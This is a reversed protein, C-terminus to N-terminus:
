KKAKHGHDHTGTRAELLHEHPEEHFDESFGALAKKYANRSRIWYAVGLTILTVGLIGAIIQAPGTTPLAAPVCNGKSDVVEGDKPTCPEPNCRSDGTPIGPKCENPKCEITVEVPATAEKGGNNTDIRVKNVLTNKGCELDKAAGVTAKFTVYAAAGPAYDGIKIGGGTTVGDAIAKGNPNSTNTLISSGPVYSLGKPLTDKVVVGDQQTSGTNKYSVLYQVVDGPKLGQVSQQWDKAGDKRVQKTVTFNPQDAKIRFTIYGAYEECGKLIGNLEEYGLPAGSSVISDPMVKNNVPGQSHIVASGSVYRLAIDANTSNQLVVDDWVQNGHNKGNDDIHKANAAGIYGVAKTDTAGRKVISPVEARAFAGQAVGVGSANLNSAANNHYYMYVIYEKGPQLSIKDTYAEPGADAPRIQMFNREDGHAPNIMSNFTVYSAPERLSFEHRAPGWASAVLPVVAALLLSLMAAIPLQARLFQTLKQTYKM